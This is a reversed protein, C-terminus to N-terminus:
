LCGGGSASLCSYTLRFGPTAVGPLRSMYERVNPPCLFFRPWPQRVMKMPMLIAAGPVSAVASKIAASM